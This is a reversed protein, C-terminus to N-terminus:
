KIKLVCGNTCHTYDDNSHGDFKFPSDFFDWVMFDCIAEPFPTLLSLEAALMGVSSRVAYNTIEGLQRCDLLKTQYLLVTCTCFM